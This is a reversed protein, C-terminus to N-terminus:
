KKNEIKELHNIFLEIHKKLKKLKAIFQKLTYSTTKHLRIKGHCDAIELFCDKESRGGRYSVLGYFSVVSGTFDSSISNLWERKNWKENKM